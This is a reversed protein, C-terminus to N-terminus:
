IASPVIRGRGEREGMEGGDSRRGRGPMSHGNSSSAGGTDINM